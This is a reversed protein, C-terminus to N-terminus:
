KTIDCTAWNVIFLGISAARGADPASNNCCEADNPAVATAGTGFDPEGTEAILVIDTTM